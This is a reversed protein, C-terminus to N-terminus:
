APKASGYYRALVRELYGSGFHVGAADWWVALSAMELAVGDGYDVADFPARKGVVREMAAVLDPMAHSTPAAVEVVANRMAAAAVLLPTVRAVDEVDVVNCVARRWLEFCESRADRAHLWNLLSHPNPTVGAVQPLRLVLRSPRTRVIPEM